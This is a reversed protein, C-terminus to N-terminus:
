YEIEANIHLKHWDPITNTIICIYSEFKGVDKDSSDFVFKLTDTKGPSIEANKNTLSTCDCNPIIQNFVLTSDGTNTIVFYCEAIEGRKIKGINFETNEFVIKAGQTQKKHSCSFILSSIILLICTKKM